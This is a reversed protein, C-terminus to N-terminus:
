WNIISEIISVIFYIRICQNLYLNHEAFKASEVREFTIGGKWNSKIFWRLQVRNDKSAKSMKEVKMNWIFFLLLFFCSFHFSSIFISQVTSLTKLQRSIEALKVGDTDHREGSKKWIQFFERQLASLKNQELSEALSSHIFSYLSLM